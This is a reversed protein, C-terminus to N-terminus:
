GSSFGDMRIPHARAAVFFTSPYLPNARWTVPHRLLVAAPVSGAWTMNFGHPYWVYYSIFPNLGHQIAWPWWNLFWIYATPHPAWGLYSHGYNKTTRFFLLSVILHLILALTAAPLPM